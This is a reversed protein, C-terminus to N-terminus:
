LKRSARHPGSGSTQIGLRCSLAQANNTRPEATLKQSPLPRIPMTISTIATTSGTIFRLLAGLPTSSQGPVWGLEETGWTEPSPFGEFVTHVRLNLQAEPINTHASQSEHTMM